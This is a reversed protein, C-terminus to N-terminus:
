PNLKETIFKEWNLTATKLNNMHEATPEKRLASALEIVQSHWFANEKANLIETVRPDNDWALFSESVQPGPTAQGTFRDFEFLADKKSPVFVQITKDDVSVVNAEFASTGSGNIVWLEDGTKANKFNM